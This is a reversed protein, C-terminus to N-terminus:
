NRLRSIWMLSRYKTIYSVHRRKPYYDKIGFKHWKWIRLGTNSYCANMIISLVKNGMEKKHCVKWRLVVKKASNIDGIEVNEGKEDEFIPWHIHSLSGIVMININARNRRFIVHAHIISHLINICLWDLMCQEQAHFTMWLLGKQLVRTTKVRKM